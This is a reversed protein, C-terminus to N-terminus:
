NVYPVPDVSDFGERVEFHLFAPNSDRVRAITQGRSVKAGKEFAIDTINAYVTLINGPHRLVLIPIQETDRTIAAVTGGEAAKVATGAAVAIDIGDNKGKEYGHIIKGQVPMLLRSTGSAPTRDKSLNPSVPAPPPTAVTDEAPLPKSASPPTPTPSGAGPVVTKTEPELAAVREPSAGGAPILLYQGERVNLNSGLGNWDAVSRVSVNYLRSISYATEGRKVKHRIPEAGTQTPTPTPTPKTARAPEPKTQFPVPAPRADARDIAAGALTSIDVTEPEGLPTVGVEDTAPLGIVQTGDANTEAIPAARTRGPLAIVEGQRLRAGMGIGNYRALTPADAGIRAAVDNITDGRRAVAVDFSPYSIVGRSDPDPRSQRDSYGASSTSLGNVGSRLDPDFNGSCASLAMVGLGLALASTRGHSIVRRFDTM